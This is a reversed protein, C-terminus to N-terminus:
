WRIATANRTELDYIIFGPRGQQAKAQRLDVLQGQKYAKTEPTISLKQLECKDCERGSVFGTLDNFLVVDLAQAEVAGEVPILVATASQSVVLFFALCLMAKKLVQFCMM